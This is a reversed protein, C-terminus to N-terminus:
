VVKEEVLDLCLPSMSVAISFTGLEVVVLAGGQSSIMSIKKLIRKM